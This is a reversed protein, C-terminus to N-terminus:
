CVASPTLGSETNALSKFAGLARKGCTAMLIIHHKFDIKRDFWIGIWRVGDPSIGKTDPLITTANPLTIM